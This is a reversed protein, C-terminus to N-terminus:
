NINLRSIPSCMMGDNDQREGVRKLRKGMEVFSRFSANREKPTLPYDEIRSEPLLNKSRGCAGRSM